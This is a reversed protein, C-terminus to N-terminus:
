ACTHHLPSPFSTCWRQTVPAIVKGLAQPLCFSSLSGSYVSLHLEVVRASQVKYWCDNIKLRVKKMKLFDLLAIYNEEEGQRQETQLNPTEHATFHDPQPFLLLWHRPSRVWSAATGPCFLEPLVSHTTSLTFQKAWFGTWGRQLMYFSSFWFGSKGSARAAPM